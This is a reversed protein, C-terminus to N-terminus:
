LNSQKQQENCIRLYLQYRWDTDLEECEELWVDFIDNPMGETSYGDLESDYVDNPKPWGNANWDINGNEDYIITKKSM